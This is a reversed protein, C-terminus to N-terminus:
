QFQTFVTEVDYIATSVNQGGVTYYKPKGKERVEVRIHHTGPDCFTSDECFYRTTTYCRKVTGTCSGGPLEIDVDETTTKLKLNAFPMIRFEDMTQQAAAVADTRAQSQLVVLRQQTFLAGVVSVILGFVVASVLSEVITLGADPQKKLNTIMFM